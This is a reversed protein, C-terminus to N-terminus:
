RLSTFIKAQPKVQKSLRGAALESGLLKVFFSVPSDSGLRVALRFTERDKSRRYDFRYIVPAGGIMSGRQFGSSTRQRACICCEDPSTLSNRVINSLTLIETLSPSRDPRHHEERSRSIGHYHSDNTSRLKQFGFDRNKKTLQQVWRRPCPNQRATRM